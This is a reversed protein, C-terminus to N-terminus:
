ENRVSGLLSFSAQLRKSITVNCLKDRLAAADDLISGANHKCCMWASHLLAKVFWNQLRMATFNFLNRKKYFAALYGYSTINPKKAATPTNHCKDSDAASFNFITLKHKIIFFFM